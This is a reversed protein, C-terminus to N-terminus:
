SISKEQINQCRQVAGLFLKGNLHVKDYNSIARCLMMHGVIMCFQNLFCILDNYFKKVGEPFLNKKYPKTDNCLDQFPSDISIYITM